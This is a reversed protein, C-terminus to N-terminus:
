ASLIDFSNSLFMLKEQSCAKEYIPWDQKYTKKEGFPKPTYQTLRAQVDKVAPNVNKYIQKSIKTLDEYQDYQM